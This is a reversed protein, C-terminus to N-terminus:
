LFLCCRRRDRFDVFKRFLNVAFVGHANDVGAPGRSVGFADDERVIVIGSCDFHEDLMHFIDAFQFPVDAKKGKCVGKLTKCTIVHEEVHSATDGVRLTEIGEGLIEPFHFRIEEDSNGAHKFLHMSPDGLADSGSRNEFFGDEELSQTDPFLRSAILTRTLRKGPVERKAVFQGIDEEEFLHFLGKATLQFEATGAARRETFLDCLKEICHINQDQFAPAGCLGRCRRCEVAGM